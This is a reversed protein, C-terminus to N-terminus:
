AAKGGGFSQNIAVAGRTVDSAFLCAVVAAVVAAYLTLILLLARAAGGGEVRSRKAVHAAAPPGERAMRVLYHLLAPVATRLSLWRGRVATKGIQAIARRPLVTAVERKNSAVYALAASSLASSLLHMEEGRYLTIYDAGFLMQFPCPSVHRTSSILKTPPSSPAYLLHAPPVHILAPSCDLAFAGCGEGHGPTSHPLLKSTHIM